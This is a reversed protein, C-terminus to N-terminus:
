RLREKGLYRVEQVETKLDRDIKLLDERTVSRGELVVDITFAGYRVAAFRLRNNDEITLDGLRKDSDGKPQGPFNEGTKSIFNGDALIYDLGRQFIIRTTM